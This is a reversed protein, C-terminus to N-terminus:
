NNNLNLAKVLKKAFGTHGTHGGHIAYIHAKLRLPNIGTLMLDGTLDLMKHYIPEREIRLPTTYGGEDTLGLTNELTVGKALGKAQLIPLERVYGYTRAQLIDEISNEASDWRLWQNKLDPHDYDVSYTYQLQQAPLAYLCVQDNLRFFVAQSLEIDPEVEKKGFHKVLADYWIQSSGDMLPMEPAGQVYVNLDTNGSLAAACLFHEVISLTQGTPAALTVGRETHVVSELRAPIAVNAPLDASPKEQVFFTVGQGLKAEEIVVQVPAGTILGIGQMTLNTRTENLTMM